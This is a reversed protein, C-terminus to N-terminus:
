AAVPNAIPVPKQKDRAFLWVLGSTTIMQVLIVLAFVTSQGGLLSEGVSIAVSYLPISAVGLVLMLGLLRWGGRYIWWCVVGWLTELALAQLPLNSYLGTGYRGGLFPAIAIDPAHVSVDLVVHSLVGLSIALAAATAARGGRWVVFLGVLVAILASTAISHSFPMHVLHVDAVSRMEENIITHEIGIVNLGVWLYEVAETALILGFLPASPFKRKLVLATAAHNIAQM